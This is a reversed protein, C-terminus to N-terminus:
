QKAVVPLKAKLWANMDGELHLLNFGEPTLADIFITARRGSRCYVVLHSQKHQELLSMHREIQNFPINIAGKIHGQEYEETSRVDIIVHSKDSMQNILLQNQTIDSQAFIQCSYLLLLVTITKIFEIM